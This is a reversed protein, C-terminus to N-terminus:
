LCNIGKKRLMMQHFINENEKLRIEQYDISLLFILLNIKTNIDMIHVILIVKILKWRRM